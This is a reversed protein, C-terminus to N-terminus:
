GRLSGTPRALRAMGGLGMLHTVLWVAADMRNPSDAGGAWTCMEGELEALDGVHWVRHGAEYLAAVPEARTRKNTRAHVVAVGPLARSKPIVKEDQLARWGVALVLKIMAGGQNGEAVFGAADHRLLATCAARGWGAPSLNDTYDGLVWVADADRGAGRGGVVIGCADESGDETASPDVSVLVRGLAPVQDPRVRAFWTRKWVAGEPPSPRQQYLSAWVKGGVRRRTEALAATDYRAPWLAEGRKRGLPDDDREAVAPLNIVRWRSAEDADALLRGAVDDEHWRTQILIVAGGPELRTLFTSQWWAWARRRMTPSSADAEDKFPDDLIGLHMGRGTLAGGIGTAVMGGGHGELDWRNAAKSTAKLRLGLDLAGDTGDHQEIADRAWRGHEEALEAGYSAIAVRRGPFRRLYWLPGWRAARRSKGHRPPMTLMVRDVLGDAIDVFAQDILGLHPAEWEGGGTVWQALAGPSQAGPTDGHRRRRNEWAAALGADARAGWAAPLAPRPLPAPPDAPRRPRPRKRTATM